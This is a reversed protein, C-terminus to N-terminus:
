RNGPVTKTPVQKIGYIDISVVFTANGKIEVENIFSFTETENSVKGYVNTGDVNLTKFVIGNKVLKSGTDIVTDTAGCGRDCRATKTGNM